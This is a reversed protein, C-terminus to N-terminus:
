LELHSRSIAYYVSGNTQCLDNLGHNADVEFMQQVPITWGHGFLGVRLLIESRVERVNGLVGYIRFGSCEDADDTPSFYALLNGHSHIEILAQHTSSDASTDFPQCSTQSQLQDPTILQWQGDELVLHFLVEKPCNHYANACREGQSIAWLRWLLAEPVLPNLQIFPQLEVLGKIPQEHISVPMLVTLGSRQARAFVGNHAVWYEIGTANQMPLPLKTAVYYEILQPTILSQNMM